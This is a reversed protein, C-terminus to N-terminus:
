TRDLVVYEYSEGPGEVAGRVLPPSQEHSASLHVFDTTALLLLATTREDDPMTEAPTSGWLASDRGTHFGTRPDRGPLVPAWGCTFVEAPGGPNRVREATMVYYPSLEDAPRYKNVDLSYLGTAAFIRDLEVLPPVKSAIFVPERGHEAEALLHDRFSM